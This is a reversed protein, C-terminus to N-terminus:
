APARPGRQRRRRTARPRRRPARVRSRHSRSCRAASLLIAGSVKAALAGSGAFTLARSPCSSATTMWRTLLEEVPVLTGLRERMSARARNLFQRVAGNSAGLRAAIEDYSRGEFERM